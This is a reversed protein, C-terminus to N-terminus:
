HLILDVAQPLATIRRGGQVAAHSGFGGTRGLLLDHGAAISQYEHCGLPQQSRAKQLENLTQVDPGEGDVLCVADTVPPVVKPGFIALERLEFVAERLGAYMRVRRCGSLAHAVIDDLLKPQFFWGQEDA